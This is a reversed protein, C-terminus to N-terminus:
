KTPLPWRKVIDIWHRSYTEYNESEGAVAMNGLCEICQQSRKIRGAEYKKLLSHPVFGCAYRMTNLEDITLEVNNFGSTSGSSSTFYEKLLMQFVKMNISQQFFQNTEINISTLFMRWLQPLHSVSQQHFESWLKERKADASEPLSKFLTKLTDVLTLSFKDFLDIENDGKVITSLFNECFSVISSSKPSDLETNEEQVASVASRIMGSAM